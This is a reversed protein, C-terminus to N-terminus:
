GCLASLRAASSAIFSAARWRPAGLRAPELYTAKSRFPLLPCAISARAYPKRYPDGGRLATSQAGERVFRAVEHANTRTTMSKPDAPSRKM